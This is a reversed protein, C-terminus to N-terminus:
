NRQLDTVIERAIADVDVERRIAREVDFRRAPSTAARAQAITEDSVEIDLQDLVTSDGDTITIRYLKPM